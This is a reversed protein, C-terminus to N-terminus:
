KKLNRLPQVLLKHLYTCEEVGRLEPIGIDMAEHTDRPQPIYSGFWRDWVSLFFGFNANSEDYHTAHHVRHMDPTIIFLRLVADVKLPLKVNSHNFMASANLLIEFVIVAIVPPGLLMVVAIKFLMSLLIEIPHFRFGSTVDLDLDSHHVRHLRWLFSIRHSFVHQWYIICDLLVVAVVVSIISPLPLVNFLGINKEAAIMAAGVAAIQVAFVTATNVFTLLVHNFWRNARSVVRQRRPWIAESVAMIVLVAIFVSLRLAGESM